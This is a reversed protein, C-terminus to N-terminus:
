HQHRGTASLQMARVADLGPGAGSLPRPASRGPVQVAARPKRRDDRAHRHKDGKGHKDRKHRRERAAPEDAHVLAAEYKDAEPFM